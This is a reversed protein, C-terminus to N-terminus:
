AANEVAPHFQKVAYVAIVIFILLVLGQAVFFPTETGTPALSHLAPVKRFGQAFLIFFNLYQALVAAVVYIWRSAGRLHSVYRAIIAILLVVMSIIGIKIGPTIHDNPFLFGTVSTLVTTMLFLATMGNVRKSALMGFIVIFGSLIGILSLAVHLTTFTSLSMGLVMTLAGRPRFRQGESLRVSDCAKEAKWWWIKEAWILV